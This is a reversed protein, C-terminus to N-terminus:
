RYYSIPIGLFYCCTCHADEISASALHSIASYVSYNIICFVISKMFSSKCRRYNQIIQFIWVYYVLVDRRSIACQLSHILRFLLLRYVHITSVQFLFFYQIFLIVLTSLLIMWTELIMMLLSPSYTWDALSAVLLSITLHLTILWM